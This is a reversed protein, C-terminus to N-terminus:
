YFKVSTLNILSKRKLKVQEKQDKDIKNKAKEDSRNNFFLTMIGILTLLTIMKIHKM